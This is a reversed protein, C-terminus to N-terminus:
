VVRDIYTAVIEYRNKEVYNKCVRLREEYCQETQSALIDQM